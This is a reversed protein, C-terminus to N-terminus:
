YLHFVLLLLMLMMLLESILLCAIKSKTWNLRQNRNITNIGEAYTNKYSQSIKFFIGNMMSKTQSRLPLFRHIDSFLFWWAITFFSTSFWRWWWDGSDNIHVVAVAVAMAVAVAIKGAAKVVV